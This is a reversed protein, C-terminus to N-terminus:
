IDGKKKKEKRFLFISQAIAFVAAVVSLIISLWVKSELESWANNGEVQQYINVLSSTLGILIFIGIILLFWKRMQAGEKM